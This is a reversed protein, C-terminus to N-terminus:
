GNIDFKNGLYPHRVPPNQVDSPDSSAQLQRNESTQKNNKLHSTEQQKMVKSRKHMEEQLLTQQLQNQGIRGQQQMQDQLKGADQVRPLAVQMEVSKWSM